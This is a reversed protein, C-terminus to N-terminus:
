SIFVDITFVSYLASIEHTLGHYWVGFMPGSEYRLVNLIKFMTKAVLIQDKKDNNRHIM